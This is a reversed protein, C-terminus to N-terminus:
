KVAVPETDWACVVNVSALLLSVFVRAMAHMEVVITEPAEVVQVAVSVLVAEVGFLPGGCPVTAHAIKGASPVKLGVRQVRALGLPLLELQVVVKVPVDPPFAVIM